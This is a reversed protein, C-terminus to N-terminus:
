VRNPAHHACNHTRRGNVISTSIAVFHPRNDGEWPSLPLEALEALRAPDTVVSAPGVATVSWGTRRANDFEDAEFAVISKGLATDLMSGPSTRFVVEQGHLVFTVAQVSPLANSTFAVRGVSVSGLLRLCEARGLVDTASNELRSM